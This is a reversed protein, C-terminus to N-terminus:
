AAKRRRSIGVLGLLGSGFLWAAAPVPVVASSSYSLWSGSIYAFNAVDDGDFDGFYSNITASTNTDTAYFHLGGSAYDITGSNLHLLPYTGGTIDEDPTFIIDGATLTFTNGYINGDAFSITGTGSTLVSDDFVGVVTVPSNGSLNYGNPTDAYIVEGTLTFNILAAQASGIGLSLAIVAVSGALKSLTRM